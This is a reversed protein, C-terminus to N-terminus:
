KDGKMNEAIKICFVEFYTDIDKRALWYDKSIGTKDSIIDIAQEFTMPMPTVEKKTFIFYQKCQQEFLSIPAKVRVTSAPDNVLINGAQVEYALIYHGGKTFYGPGMTCIVLAGAQLSKVVEDTSGTQRLQLKYKNAIHGFYEWETGSDPTRDKFELAMKCTDVPTIKPDIWEALIMAMSTPGCGSAAITQKASGTVTYPNSGWRPDKQSYYVPKKM